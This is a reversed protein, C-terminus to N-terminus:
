RTRILDAFNSLEQQNLDSVAAYGMGNESWRVLHYGDLQESSPKAPAGLAPVVFLNIIHQGRKYVVAAAPRQHIVDLRGGILVFGKERLDPVPPSFSIKGQFWPKVTHRDSSPVDILHNPMLSRLHSDLIERGEGSGGVISRFPVVFLLLVALAMAGVLVSRSRWANQWRWPASGDSVKRVSRIRRAFEPTPRYRLQADAIEGHLHEFGAYQAACARCEALHREVNLSGPLDLEGDLYASLLPEAEQCNM